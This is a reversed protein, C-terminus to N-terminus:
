TQYVGLICSHFVVYLTLSSKLPWPATFVSLYWVCVLLVLVRAVCHEVATESGCCSGHVNTLEPVEAFDYEALRWLIVGTSQLCDLPSGLARM